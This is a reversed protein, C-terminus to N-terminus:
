GIRARSQYIAVLRPNDISMVASEIAHKRCQQVRYSVLHPNGYEPCVLEAANAIRAYLVHAGNATALSAPDYKVTLTPADGPTAAAAAGIGAAGFMGCMLMALTVKPLLTGGQRPTTRSPDATTM